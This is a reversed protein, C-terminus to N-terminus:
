GTMVGVRDDGLETMRLPALAQASLALVQTTSPGRADECRGSAECPTEVQACEGDSNTGM